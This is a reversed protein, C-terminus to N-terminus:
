LTCEQMQNILDKTKVIINRLLMIQEMEAESADVIDVQNLINAAKIITKEYLTVLQNAITKPEQNQNVGADGASGVYQYHGRLPSIYDPEDLLQKLAGALHGQRYDTIGLTELEAKIESISIPANYTKLISKINTRLLATVSQAAM